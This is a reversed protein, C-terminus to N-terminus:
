SLYKSCYLRIYQIFVLIILGAVEPGLTTDQYQLISGKFNFMFLM